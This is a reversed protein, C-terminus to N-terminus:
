DDPSPLLFREFAADAQATQNTFFIAMNVTAKETKAVFSINWTFTANNKNVTLAIKQSCTTIDTFGTQTYEYGYSSGSTQKQAPNSLTEILKHQTDIQLSRTNNSRDYTYDDSWFARFFDLAFDKVANYVGKNFTWSHRLQIPQNPANAVTLPIYLEGFVFDSLADVDMLGLTYKILWRSNTENRNKSANIACSLGTNNHIVELIPTTSPANLTGSISHGYHLLYLLWRYLKKTPDPVLQRM